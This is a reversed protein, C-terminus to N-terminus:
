ASATTVSTGCKCESTAEEKISSKVAQQFEYVKEVMHDLHYAIVEDDLEQVNCHALVRNVIHWSEHAIVNPPADIPLFIYSLGKNHVHYCFADADEGPGQGIREKASKIIDNSFIVRVCYNAMVEFKVWMAYDGYKTKKSKKM